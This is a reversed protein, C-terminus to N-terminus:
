LSSAPPQLGTSGGGLLAEVLRVTMAKVEGGGVGVPGVCAPCGELCSCGQVLEHAGELLDAHLQYLREALGMGEPIQDFFTLTPGGTTKSRTEV